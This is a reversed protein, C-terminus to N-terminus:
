SEARVDVDFATGTSVVEVVATIAEADTVGAQPPVTVTAKLLPKRFLSLPVRVTMAVAIEGRGTDPQGRVMRLGGDSDAVLWCEYLLEDGRKQTFRNM